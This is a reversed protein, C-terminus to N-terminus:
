YIRRDFMEAAEECLTDVTPGSLCICLEKNPSQRM